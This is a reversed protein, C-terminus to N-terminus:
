TTSSGTPASWILSHRPRRSRSLPASRKSTVPSPLVGIWFETHESGTYNLPLDLPIWPRLSAIRAEIRSISASAEESQRVLAEIQAAARNAAELSASDFLQRETMTM